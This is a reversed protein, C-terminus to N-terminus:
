SESKAKAGSPPASEFLAPNIRSALLMDQFRNDTRMVDGALVSTVEPRLEGSAPASMIFNDVFRTNYFRYVLAAFTDYGRQMQQETPLDPQLEAENGALLAPALRAVLNEAGLMALSVGSSFVPDIFCAADGVCAFRRGSRKSNRYSFNGILHRKTRAAGRTWRSLRPSSDVYHVVDDEGMGAIRSVLGVSLRAGPLPIVWAWGEKLMMIRIENDPAFEALTDAHVDEFHMFSAAKGFHRYPEVSRQQRALLRDQGTADIIFRASEIGHDTHVQGTTESFEVGAARVGHRVVAGLEAARELLLTDFRAREVHYAHRPPGPMAEAFNFSVTRDTAECVFQAGAKYQFTDSRPAIQLVDHALGAAPLLSEGIHFRPFIEKELVLVRLGRTVLLAASTSGGPGGGIVIVDWVTAGNV